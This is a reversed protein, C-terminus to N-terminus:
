PHFGGLTNMQRIDSIASNIAKNRGYHFFYVLGTPREPARGARGAIQILASKTFNIHESNFVFVDVRPFTVGRELITTSILITLKNQRFDEVLQLRNETQSSVAAIKEHPFKETLQHLLKEGADLTPAFILLPFDTLRQRTLASLFHTQWITRPTVLPQGHFRRALHLEQLSGSKIQRNLADTSTATLYILAGAPKKANEVAHYLVPNDVFPFADVEDIIILDFAAKFRLLQHTTAIVLPSRFYPEGHGHLCPIKLTFDRSLRSHLETVVDIRPSVLAVAGGDRLCADIVAYTMETKGAGTVAHVLSNIKKRFSEVLQESIAHQYPTLTGQWRLAKLSAFDKQPLFYLKEDSRVRGLTICAPCYFSGIPLAVDSKQSIEGCRNCRIKDASIVTMGPIENFKLSSDCENKTLFRGFFNEM